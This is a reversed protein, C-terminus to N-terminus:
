HKPLEKEVYQSGLYGELGSLALLGATVGAVIQHDWPRNWEKHAFYGVTTLIGVNLIGVLGGAVNPRLIVEKAQLYLRSGERKAREAEARGEPTDLYSDALFGEVGFLALTGAVAASVNRRDWPVNRNQYAWYGMGGLLGVNVIGMLGGLTGPRLVVDKTKAWAAAAATEAEDLEAKARKKLERAKKEAENAARNIKKGAEDATDELKGKTEEWDKEASAKAQDWDDKTDSDLHPAPDEPTPPGDRLEQSPEPMEGAPINDKTVEAYSM